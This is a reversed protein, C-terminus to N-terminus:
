GALLCILTQVGFAGGGGTATARESRKVSPGAISRDIPRAKSLELLEASTRM